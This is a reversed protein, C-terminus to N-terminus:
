RNIKLTKTIYRNRDANKNVVNFIGDKDFYVSMQAKSGKVAEILATDDFIASTGGNAFFNRNKAYDSYDKYVRAGKPLNVLTPTDPTLFTKGKAEVVERKGGDGVIALGGEHYRTGEAYTPPQPKEPVPQSMITGIQTAYTATHMAIIPAAFAQYEEIARMVAVAYSMTAKGTEVVQQRRLAQVELQWKKVEIQYSKEAAVREVESTAAIREEESMATEDIAALQATKWTEIRELQKDLRAQEAADLNDFVSMMNSVVQKSLDTITKVIGVWEELETNAINNLLKAINNDANELDNSLRVVVEHLAEGESELQKQRRELETREISNTTHAIQKKINTIKQEVSFLRNQAETLAQQTEDRQQTLESLQQQQTIKNRRKTYIGLLRLYKGQQEDFDRLEKDYARKREDNSNEYAQKEKRLREQTDYETLANLTQQYQTTLTILENYSKKLNKNREKEDAVEQKLQDKKAADTEKNYKESLERLKKNSNEWDEFIKKVDFNKLVSEQMNKLWELWDKQANGEFRAMFDEFGNLLFNVNEVSKATTNQLDKTIQEFIGKSQSAFEEFLSLDFKNEIKMQADVASQYIDNITQTENQFIQYLISLNKQQLAIYKQTHKAGGGEKDAFPLYEAYEALVNSMENAYERATKISTGMTALIQTNAVTFKEPIKGTEEIYDLLGQLAAKEDDKVNKILETLYNKVGSIDPTLTKFVDAAITQYAKKMSKLDGTLISNLNHVVDELSVNQTSTFKNIFEEGFSVEQMDVFAQKLEDLKQKVFETQGAFLAMAIAERQLTLVLDNNNLWERADAINEFHIHQDKLLKNLQSLIRKEGEETINANNLAARYNEIKSATTIYETSLQSMAAQLNEFQKRNEETMQGMEKAKYIYEGVVKILWVLAAAAAVYPSAKIVVNLAKQAAVAAWKAATNASMAQTNLWVSLTSSDQLQKSVQTLGNVMSQLAIFERMTKQYSKNSLGLIEIGAKYSQLASTGLKIGSIAVDMSYTEKTLAAVQGKVDKLADNYRVIEATLQQYQQQEDKSLSGQTLQKDRLEALQQTLERIKSLYSQTAEEAGKIPHKAQEMQDKVELIAKATAHLNQELQQYEATDISKGSERAQQSMAGMEQQINTYQQALETLRETFTQVSAGAEENASKYNGINLAQQTAADSNAKILFSNASIIENYKELETANETINLGKTLNRLATNQAELERISGGLMQFKQALEDVDGKTATWITSQAQQAQAWAKMEKQNEKTAQTLQQEKELLSRMDVLKRAVKQQGEKMAQSQAKLAAIHNKTKAYVTELTNAQKKGTEVALSQTMNLAQQAEKALNLMEARQKAAAAYKEEVQALDKLTSTFEKMSTINTNEALNQLTKTLESIQSNVQAVGNSANNFITQIQNAINTYDM